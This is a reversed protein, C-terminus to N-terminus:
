LIIITWRSVSLTHFESCLGLSDGKTALIYIYDMVAKSVRREEEKLFIFFCPVRIGGCGWFDCRVGSPEM